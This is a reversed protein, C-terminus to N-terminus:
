KGTAGSAGTSTGTTDPATPTSYDEACRWRGDAEKRWVTLEKVPIKTVVGKSDPITFEGTGRVYGLEGSRAVVATDTTWTIHFGPTAFSSKVMQLLAPKGQIPAGGPMTVYADETWYSAVSDPNQGASAAQSWARDTALLNETEKAVDVRSTQCGMVLFLVAAAPAARRLNLM